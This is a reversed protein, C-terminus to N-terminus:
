RVTPLSSDGAPFATGKPYSAYTVVFRFDGQDVFAISSGVHTLQSDLIKARTSPNAMLKKFAEDTNAARVVSQSASSYGPVMHADFDYCAKDLQYPSDLIFGLCDNSTWSMADSYTVPTLGRDQRAQNIKHYFDVRSKQMDKLSIPWQEPPLYIGGDHNPPNIGVLGGTMEAHAPVVAAVCMALAVGTTAALHSLKRM